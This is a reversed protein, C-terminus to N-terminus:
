KIKGFLLKEYQESIAKSGYNNIIYERNKQAKKIKEDNTMKSWNIIGQILEDESNYGWDEWFEKTLPNHWMNYFGELGSLMGEAFAYHFSETNSYSMIIDYEKLFESINKRDEILSKAIDKEILNVKNNLNLKNILNILEKKHAIFEPKNSKMGMITLTFEQDIQILKSFMKILSDYGKIPNFNYGYAVISKGYKKKNNPFASVDIANPITHTNINNNIKKKFKNEFFSNVFILDDINQWKIKQMYDSEIENRHLRVVVKKNWKKKAVQHAFKNAWEVWIVEGKVMFHWYDRKHVPFLYQIKYKKELEKLIPEAFHYNGKKCIFTLDYKEKYFIM